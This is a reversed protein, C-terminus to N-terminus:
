MWRKKRRLLSILALHSREAKEFDIEQNVTVMVGEMFLKKVIVSPQMKM